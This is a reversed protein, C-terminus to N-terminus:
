INFDMKQYGGTEFLIAAEYIVYPSHQQTQWKQFIKAVEPHIIANLSDLKERNKFVQSSIYKRDPKGDIIAREGLLAIIKQHVEPSNELVERAQVDAIFIPIGLQGFFRAVTTKGSGIGGTLGILKM